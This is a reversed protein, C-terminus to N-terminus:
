IPLGWEIGGVVVIVTSIIPVGLLTGRIIPVEFARMMKWQMDSRLHWYQEALFPLKGLCPFIPSGLVSGLIRVLIMIIRVGLFTGRIKPFRWICSSRCDEYIMRAADSGM